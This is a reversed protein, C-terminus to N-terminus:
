SMFFMIILTKGTSINFRLRNKLAMLCFNQIAGGMIITEYIAENTKVLGNTLPEDLDRIAQQINTESFNILKGKYEYSNLEKLKEELVTRLLVDHHNERMSEAKEPSLYNYGLKKLVEIAPVQSINREDYSNARSKKM